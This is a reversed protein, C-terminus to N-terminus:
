MFLGARESLRNQAIQFYEDDIECGLFKRGNLLAAHCVAGSGAFPDFVLDGENSYTKVLWECLGLPKQTPHLSNFNGNSAEIVSLPFRLGDKSESNVSRLKGYHLSNGRYEKMKYPEALWKQPNYTAKHGGSSPRGFKQCFVLIYEHARLPRANADLFGVGMTKKWILEYRFFKHKALRMALKFDAFCILNGNPKLIRFFEDFLSEFDIKDKDFKLNTSLYPPDTIICDIFNQPIDKIFNKCDALYLTNIQM